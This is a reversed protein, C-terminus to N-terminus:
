AQALDLLSLAMPGAATAILAGPCDAARLSMRHEHHEIQSSLM